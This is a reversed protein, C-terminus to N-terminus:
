IISGCSIMCSSFSTGPSVRCPVGSSLGNVFVVFSFVIDNVFAVIDLPFCHCAAHWCRYSWVLGDREMWPDAVNTIQEGEADGHKARCAVADRLLPKRRFEAKADHLPPHEADDRCRLRHAEEFHGAGQEDVLPLQAADHIHQRFLPDHLRFRIRVVLPRDAQARGAFARIHVPANECAGKLAVLKDHRRQRRAFKFGQKRKEVLQLWHHAVPSGARGLLSFGSVPRFFSIPPFCTQYTTVRLARQM